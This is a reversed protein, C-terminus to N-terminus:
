DGIRTIKVYGSDPCTNQSIDSKYIVNTVHDISIDNISGINYAHGGNSDYSLIVTNIKNKETRISTVSNNNKGVMIYLLIGQYLRVEGSAYNGNNSTYIELNYIGDMPTIFQQLDNDTTYCFESVSKKNEIGELKEIVNTKQKDFIVKRSQFNGLILLLLILFLALISYLIGSVAFGKNNM